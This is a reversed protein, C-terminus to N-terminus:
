LGQKLVKIAVAKNATLIVIKGAQDVVIYYRVRKSNEREILEREEDMPKQHLRRTGGGPGTYHQIQKLTLM